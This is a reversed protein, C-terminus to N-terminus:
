SKYRDPNNCGIRLSWIIIRATANYKRDDENLDEPNVNTLGKLRLQQEVFNVYSDINACNKSTVKISQLQEYSIAQQSTYSNGGRSACGVLSVLVLAIALTKM